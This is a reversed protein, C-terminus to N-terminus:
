RNHPQELPLTSAMTEITDTNDAIITITTSQAKIRTTITTAAAAAVTPKRYL